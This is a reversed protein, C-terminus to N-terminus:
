DTAGQQSSADADSEAPPKKTKRATSLHRRLISFDDQWLRRRLAQLKALAELRSLGFVDQIAKVQPDLESRRLHVRTASFERWAPLADDHIMHMGRVMSSAEVGDPCLAQIQAILEPDVYWNHVTSTSRGLMSAVSRISSYGASTDRIWLVGDSDAKEELRGYGLMVAIQRRVLASKGRVVKVDSSGGKSRDTKHAQGYPIGREMQEMVDEKPHWEGDSLYRIAARAIDNARSM